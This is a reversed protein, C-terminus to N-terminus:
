FGVFMAQEKPSLPPSGREAQSDSIDALPMWVGTYEPMNLPRTSASPMREWDYGQFIWHNKIDAVGRKLLGYRKTIDRELLRSILDAAKTPFGAPFKLSGYLINQYTALHDDAAFPSTSCILGM